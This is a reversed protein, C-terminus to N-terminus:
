SSLSILIYIQMETQLRHYTLPELKAIKLCIKLNGGLLNNKLIKVKRLGYNPNKALKDLTTKKKQPPCQGLSPYFVTWREYCFLHLLIKFISKGKYLPNHQSRDNPEWEKWLDPLISGDEMSELVANVRKTLNSSKSIQQTTDCRILSKSLPHIKQSHIGTHLIGISKAHSPFLHYKFDKKRM